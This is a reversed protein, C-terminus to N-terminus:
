GDCRRSVGNAASIVANLARVFDRNSKQELTSQNPDALLILTSSRVKIWFDRAGAAADCLAQATRANEETRHKNENIATIISGAFLVIGIGVILAALWPGWRERRM